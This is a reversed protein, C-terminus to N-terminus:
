TVREESLHTERVKELLKRAADSIRDCGYLNLWSFQGCITIILEVSADTISCCDIVTLQRLLPLEQCVIAMTQDTLILPNLIDEPIDCNYFDLETLNLQNNLNTSSQLVKIKTLHLSRLTPIQAAFLDSWSSLTCISLILSDIKPCNQLYRQMNDIGIQLETLCIFELHPSKCLGFILEQQNCRITLRKLQPMGELFSTMGTTGNPKLTVDIYELRPLNTGVENLEEGTAIITLDKIFRQMQSFQAASAQGGVQDFKDLKLARMGAIQNLMYPTLHSTLQKLTRQSSQIVICLAEENFIEQDPQVDLEELRTCIQGFVNFVTRCSLHTLRDLRFDVAGAEVSSYVTDGLNLWELNPAGRLMELLTSLAVECGYLAISLLGSGFWPWWSDVELIKVTQMTVNAAPPLNEPEHCWDLKMAEINVWFMDHLWRSGDVIERWRHCTLRVQLISAGDLLEFIELWLEPPLYDEGEDSEVTLRPRCGPCFWFLGTEAPDSALLVSAVSRDATVLESRFRKRCPGCCRIVGGGGANSPKSPM